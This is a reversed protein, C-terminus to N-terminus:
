NFASTPSPLHQHTSRPHSCNIWSFQLSILCSSAPLPVAPSPPSLTVDAYPLISSREGGRLLCVLEWLQQNNWHSAGPILRQQQIWENKHLASLLWRHLIARNQPMSWLCSLLFTQTISIITISFAGLLTGQNRQLSHGQPPTQYCSHGHPYRQGRCIATSSCISEARPPEAPPPSLDSLRPVPLFFESPCSADPSIHERYDQFLNLLSLKEQSLCEKSFYTWGRSLAWVDCKWFLINGNAKM